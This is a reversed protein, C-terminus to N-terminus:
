GMRETEEVLDELKFGEDGRAFMEVLRRRRVKLDKGVQSSEKAEVEEGVNYFKQMNMVLWRGEEVSVGRGDIVMGESLVLGKPEALDLHHTVTTHPQAYEGRLKYEALHTFIVTATTPSPFTWQLLHIPAGEEVEKTEAADEEIVKAKKPLGPLIFIPHKRAIRQIHTWTDTPIAACLSTPNEAHRLRWIAEIERQPLEMTKQVDLFSSLNKIGPVKPGIPSGKSATSQTNPQARAEPVPPPPPPGPPAVSPQSLPTTIGPVAANKKLEHIKDAYAEKLQGIDQVGAEHAKQQLKQRYRDTVGSSAQQTAVFRVDRVRAWRRQQCATRLRPLQRSCSSRVISVAVASM